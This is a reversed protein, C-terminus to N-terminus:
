ACRARRGARTCGSRPRRARRRELHRRLARAVPQLRRRPHGPAHSLRTLGRATSGRRPVVDGGIPSASPAPSTCWGAGERRRRAAHAGGVRRATVRGVCRATAATTTSTSGGTASASGSSAHRRKLWHPAATTRSSGPGADDRPPADGRAAAAADALNLDLWTQERDQVQFALAATPRGAWTWSWPSRPRTNRSTSGGRPAAARARRHGPAGGPQARRRAPLPHGRRRAARRHRGGAHLAPRGDRRAAPLRPRHLRPEVLAGQLHRPRLDGGPLGLGAQREPRGALRRTTLRQERGAASTSWTSTTTACSPSGARRRPQVGAGRGQGARPHPPHRPRPRVHVRFLDGGAAVVM